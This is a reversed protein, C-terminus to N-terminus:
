CGGYYLPELFKYVLTYNCMCAILLVGSVCCVHVFCSPHGVFALYLQSPQNAVFDTFCFCYVQGKVKPGYYCHALLM